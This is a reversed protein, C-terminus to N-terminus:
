ITIIRSIGRVTLADHIELNGWSVCIVYTSAPFEACCDDMGMFRYQKFKTSQSLEIHRMDIIAAINIGELPGGVEISKFFNDGFGYAIIPEGNEFYKRITQARVIENDVYNKFKYELPEEIEIEHTPFAYRAVVYIAPYPDGDKYEFEIQGTKDAQFNWKSLLLRLSMSTFHNIHLRDFYFLFERRLYNEYRSADPVEIYIYGSKTLLKTLQAIDDFNVMHEVVHSLIILDFNGGLNKWDRSFSIESDAAQGDSVNPDAGFYFHHAYQRYLTHLLGAQGCGVDLIRLSHNVDVISKLIAMQGGYRSMETATYCNNAGLNDNLNKRYFESYSAKDRPSTFGFNCDACVSISIQQPLSYKTPFAIKRITQCSVQCIPCLSKM